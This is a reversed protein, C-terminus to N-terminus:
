EYVDGNEKIKTDEYPAAVRRYLELKACELMGVLTNINTYNQGNENLWDQLLTSVLYNLEGAPMGKYSVALATALKERDEQKIYPL